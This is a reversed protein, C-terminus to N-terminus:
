SYDVDDGLSRTYTRTWEQQESITYSGIARLALLQLQATRAKEETSADSDEILEDPSLHGFAAELTEDNRHRM